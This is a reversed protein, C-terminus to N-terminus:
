MNKLAAKISEKHKAVFDCSPEAGCKRCKFDYASNITQCKPCTYRSRVAALWKECGIRKIEALDNWLENRHPRESQFQKIVACPYDACEVCFDLNRRAACAYMECTQCYPGRKGARCGYCKVDEESVEFRAALAKLRAPDENTAVFLSCAECYLGCVAALKKKSEDSEEKQM